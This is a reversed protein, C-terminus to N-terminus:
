KDRHIKHTSLVFLIGTKYNCFWLGSVFDNTEPLKHLRPKIGGDGWKESEQEM